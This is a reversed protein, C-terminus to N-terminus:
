GVKVTSGGCDEKTSGSVHNEEAKACAWGSQTEGM